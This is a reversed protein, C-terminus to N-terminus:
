VPRERRRWVSALWPQQERPLGDPRYYHTIEEFGAACVLASWTEWKWFAGYRGREFGETDLGHPNSAFLVGRPKLAARLDGLVRSLETTPIHFMSANAYIGDFSAPLLSLRLFDQHLVECEGNARAMEVFSPTADLGVPEHGKARFAALDRGPGCGFDLIRFPGSRGEAALADLLATQNQSVDHTKTGEWFQAARGEYDAVTTDTIERLKETMM